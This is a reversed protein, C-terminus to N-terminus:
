KEKVKRYFIKKKQWVSGFPRFHRSFHFFFQRGCFTRGDASLFNKVWIKKKDFVKLHDLIALFTFFFQHGCFTRLAFLFLHFM